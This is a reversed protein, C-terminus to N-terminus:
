AANTMGKGTTSLAYDVVLEDAELRPTGFLSEAGKAGPLFETVFKMWAEAPIYVTGEADFAV